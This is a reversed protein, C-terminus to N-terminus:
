AVLPTQYGLSSHRRKNNYWYVYKNWGELFSEINTFKHRNIFEIKVTKFFSEIVANDIPTGKQSLSRKIKFADLIEDVAKSNFESGRDTHFVDIERLDINMNYLSNTVLSTDRSKAVCSSLIARRSLDLMSCLYHWKDSIAIYTTDSVVVEHQKRGDFQRAVLNPHSSTNVRTKVKPKKKKTYCSVLDKAIMIRGIRLRSVNHGLAKLDERIRPTGYTRFSEKFSNEVAKVIEEDEIHKVPLYYYSSRPVGL